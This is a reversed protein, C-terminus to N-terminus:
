LALADTPHDAVLKERTTPATSATISGASTCLMHEWHIIQVPRYTNQGNQIESLMSPTPRWSPGVVKRTVKTRGRRTLEESLPVSSPYLKYTEMRQGFIYRALLYIWLCQVTKWIPFTHEWDLARFSSANHRVTQSVEREMRDYIHRKARDARICTPRSAAGMALFTRRSQCAM